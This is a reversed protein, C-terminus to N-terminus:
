FGIVNANSVNNAIVELGRQAANLGSLGQQFNGGFGM